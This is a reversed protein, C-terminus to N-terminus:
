KIMGMLTRLLVNLFSIGNCKIENMLRSEVSPSTTLYFISYSLSNNPLTLELAKTILVELEPLFMLKNAEVDVFLFRKLYMKLM